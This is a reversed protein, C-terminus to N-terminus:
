EELALMSFLIKIVFPRFSYNPVNNYYDTSINAFDSLSFSSFLMCPFLASKSM